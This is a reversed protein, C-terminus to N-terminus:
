AADAALHRRLSIVGARARTKMTGLPVSLLVAAQQYSYGELYTLVVAERQVRSLLRIASRLRAAEHLAMGAESADPVVLDSTTADRRDRRGAAEVQRVRDVARRHAITRLWVCVSGRAPDYSRANQWVHLYVEQMVEASHEPSRLAASVTHLVRRCTLDYLEAFAAEDGGGVQELLRDYLDAPQTHTVVFM